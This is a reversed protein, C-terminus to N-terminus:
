FDFNFMYDLKIFFKYNKTIDWYPYQYRNKDRGFLFGVYFATYARPNYTGVVQLFHNNAKFDYLPYNYHTYEYLVRVYTKSSFQYKGELEFAYFDYLKGAGIKSDLKAYLFNTSFSVKSIPYFSFGLDFSRKDGLQPFNYDYYVNDGLSINMSFKVKKFHNCFFGFNEDWYRFGNGLYLEYIRSISSYMNYGGSLEVLITNGADRDTLNGSFDYGTMDSFKVSISRLLGVNKEPEYHFRVYENHEWFDNRRIFGADDYFGDSIGYTEFGFDVYRSQYDYSLDWVGGDQTIFNFWPSDTYRSYAGLFSITQKKSLRVRGDFSFVSNKSDKFKRNATFFGLFSNGKFSHKYRLVFWNIDGSDDFGFRDGPIDRELAYLAAVSEKGWERIFKLGVDPDIIRRSYFLNLLPTSFAESSELFFPRKESYYLPFRHNADFRIDDAEVESFDPNITLGLRTNSDPKLFITGGISGLYSSNSYDEGYSSDFSDRNYSGLIQPIIYLSKTKVRHEFILYDEYEFMNPANRDALISIDEEFGKKLYIHRGLTFGWKMPFKSPFKFNRFPIRAEIEYHDKYLVGKSTIDFDQSSDFGNNSQIGDTIEGYCNFVVVYASKYKCFTDFSFVIDETEGTEDRRLHIPNFKDVGKLSAYVGLYINKEDYMIYVKTYATPPLYDGPNIQYFKDIILADEWEGKEIKGDIKPPNKIFPVVYKRGNFPKFNKGSVLISSLFLILVIFFARRSM